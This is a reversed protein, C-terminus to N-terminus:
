HRKVNKIAYRTIRHGCIRCSELKQDYKTGCGRCLYGWKISEKIADIGCGHFEIGMRSSVNQLSYDDSIIVGGHEKAIAVIEMDTQSLYPFDGTEMAAERVEEMYEDKPAATKIVNLDHTIVRGMKGHRIERIVSEPVLCNMSLIEIRGTLIASTDPIIFKNGFNIKEYKKVM